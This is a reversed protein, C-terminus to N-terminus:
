ETALAGVPDLRAAKKAPLYGFLVGSGASCFFALLVPGPSFLALWGLFSAVAVAAGIGTVVGILGGALCVIVAETIFQLLVDRTRAGVAMRVGIERTRETVSVLMINMVGIGGVMLSIAAISGLLYTLTNQTQTATDMLAAMSRVQFDKTRHRKELLQGIDEQAADMADAAAVRVSIARLHRQGFLRTSGTTLPVWVMNDMDNGGQDAGKPAMVAIVQFPVNGMLVYKGLPNEGPLFIAEAVTRGLAVVQAYRREENEKFFVGAETPWNRVEPFASITASATTMVDRNAYRITVPQIMEPLVASIGPLAAIAKADEPTLTTINGGAGKVGPAGPKVLLLNTGMAQIRDLVEQKAGNGIALMAVVSATGIIIGLMTLITRFRNARLATIGMGLAERFASTWASQEEGDFEAPPQIVQQAMKRGPLLDDSVVVGDALRVIREAHNAVAPDHTVLIITHGEHHLQRLIEMVDAGSKSDLAGTPEDALIIRGGNMLARAVSVRQQQGGSLQSPLYHAREALGLSQLLELARQRRQMPSVGAYIAPMEVNHVASLGSILQYRQFIFGFLRRRQTALLASPLLSIDEGHLRYTGSSPRDLCGILHMLTSKGSGSPGMIAVFEGSHITLSIGHLITIENEGAAYTKSISQMEIMPQSV